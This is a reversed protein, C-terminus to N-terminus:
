SLCAFEELEKRTMGYKKALLEAGGFHSFLAPNIGFEEFEKQMRLGYKSVMEETMPLGAGAKLGAVINSGIPVLSM